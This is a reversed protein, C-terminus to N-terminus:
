HKPHSIPQADIRKQCHSTTKWAYAMSNETPNANKKKKTGRFDTHQTPYQPIIYSGATSSDSFCIPAATEDVTPQTTRDFREHDIADM